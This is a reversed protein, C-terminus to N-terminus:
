RLKISIKTDDAVSFKADAYSAPGYKGANNSFGYGEKPLGIFNTDLQGNDNEDHYLKIAYTGEELTEFVASVKSANAPIEKTALPKGSSSYADESDYLAIVVNGTQSEINAVELQLSAALSIASLSFLSLGLASKKIANM